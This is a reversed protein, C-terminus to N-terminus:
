SKSITIELHNNKTYNNFIVPINFQGKRKNKVKLIENKKNAYINNYILLKDGNVLLNQNNKFIKKGVSKKINERVTNILAKDETDKLEEPKYLTLSHANSNHFEIGDLIAM